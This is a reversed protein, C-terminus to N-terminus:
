WVSYECPSTTSQSNFVADYDETDDGANCHCHAEGDRNSDSCLSKWLLFRATHRERHNFASLQEAFHVGISTDLGKQSETDGNGRIERESKPSATGKNVGDVTM